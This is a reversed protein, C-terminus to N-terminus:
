STDDRFERPLANIHEGVRARNGDGKEGTAAIPCDGGRQM